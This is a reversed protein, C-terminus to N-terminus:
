IILKLKDENDFLDSFNFKTGLAQEFTIQQEVEGTIKDKYMFLYKPIKILGKVFQIGKDTPRWYGTTKKTGTEDRATEALGWRATMPYDRGGYDLDTHHLWGDKGSSINVLYRYVLSRM